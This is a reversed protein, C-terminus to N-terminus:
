QLQRWLIKAEVLGPTSHGETFSNYVQGLLHSAEQSKGNRQMLRSLSTAASLVFSIARQSEAIKIADRFCAEAEQEDDTLVLLQGKLHILEARYYGQGTSDALQLGEEVASLAEELEGSKILAESLLALFHPRSIESGIAQYLDLTQRMQSIGETLSGQESLAWGRLSSGFAKWQALGEKDALEITSEAFGMTEASERRLQHTWAAFFLAFCRTEPHNLQEALELAERITEVARDPYGLSWLAWANFCRLVARPDHGYLLLHTDIHAPDYLSVGEELHTSASEFEGMNNLTAGAALHAEVLLAADKATEALQLLRQALEYAVKLDSRILYFRWIGWLIPFLQVTDGSQQCLSRAHSYAHEVEKFGYGHTAALALAFDTQLPLEHAARGPEDLKEVLTLGKRALEVTEQNAFRHKAKECAQHIYSLARRYDRAREFHMALEAAIDVGRSGFAVEMHEGIRRHLHARKTRPVREYLVNQYLAHIFLYCPTLDDVPSPANPSHCLLLNRRVLDECVEEVLLIDTGLAASLSATSFEVGAVSAAELVRKEEESLNDIQKEIMQRVNDPLGIKLREMPETLRWQDDQQAILGSSLLFELLNIIFLPNGETRQHILEAFVPPFINSAFRTAVFDAVATESLFRLPLEHCLRHVQLERKVDSLPHRTTMAEAPRYTGIVMLRAPENRRALYSVLDLTSYDSWQLDEILLVLPKTHCLAELAEAMERLMRERTAGVAEPYITQGERDGILSPIQAVLTPALSTFLERIREVHGERCLRTVAELMPLYAESSGYQELCQGHAILIDHDASARDLFAEVLTTKGIGPEGTVFIIQREGALTKQLFSQLEGIELERGVVDAVRLRAVRGKVTKNEARIDDNQAVKNIEAIFRYGRRHSTAIFRPTMPDDDLAERIERICVKLVTDTVTTDPWVAELIEEKTILRGPRGALYHLVEFTKPRLPIVADDRFLRKDDCDLRYPPFIIRKQELRTM